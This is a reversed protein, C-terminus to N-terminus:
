QLRRGGDVPDGAMVRNLAELHRPLFPVAGDLLGSKVADAADAASVITGVPLTEIQVTNRTADKVRAAFKEFEKHIVTNPGYLGQVKWKHQQQAEATGILALSMAAAASMLRLARGLESM